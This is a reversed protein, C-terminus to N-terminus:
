DCCIKLVFYGRVRVREGQPLPYPHPSIMKMIRAQSDGSPAHVSLRYDVIFIASDICESSFPHTICRVM